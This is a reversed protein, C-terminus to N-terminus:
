RAALRRELEKRFDALAVDADVYEGTRDYEALSARAEAWGDDMSKAILENAFKDASKGLAEAADKVRQALEENLEITMGADAM